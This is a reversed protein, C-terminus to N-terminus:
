SEMSSYGSESSTLDDSITESDSDGNDDTGKNAGWWNSWDLVYALKEQVNPDSFIEAANQAMYRPPRWKRQSIHGIGFFRICPLVRIDDCRNETGRHLVTVDRVLVAGKPLCVKWIKYIAKDFDEPLVGHNRDAPRVPGSSCTVVEMPAHDPRNSEDTTFISCALTGWHSSRVDFSYDDSHFNQDGGGCLQPLVVDGSTRDFFRRSWKDTVGQIAGICKDFCGDALLTKLVSQWAETEWSQFDALCYRKDYGGDKDNRWSHWGPMFALCQQHLADLQVTSLGVLEPALMAFGFSRFQWVVEDESRCLSISDCPLLSM